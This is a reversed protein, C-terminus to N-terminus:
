ADQLMEAAKSLSSAPCAFNASVSWQPDDRQQHLTVGTRVAIRAHGHPTMEGELIFSDNSTALSFRGRLKESCERLANAFAALARRQLEVDVACTMRGVQIKARGIRVDNSGHRFSPLIVAVLVNGLDDVLSFDIRSM